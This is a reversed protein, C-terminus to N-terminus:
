EAPLWAKGKEGKVSAVALTMQVADPLLSKKIEIIKNKKKKKVMASAKQEHCSPTVTFFKGIAKRKREYELQSHVTVNKPNNNGNHDNDINKNINNKNYNM